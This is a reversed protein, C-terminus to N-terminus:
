LGASANGLPGGAPQQFSTRDGTADPEATCGPVSQAPTRNCLALKKGECGIIQPAPSLSQALAGLDKRNAILVVCQGSAWLEHLKAETGIFGAHEEPSEAFPALEGWYEVLLERQGTYFPLSQVYHRYSAIACGHYQGIQRALTRYSTQASADIRAHEGLVTTAAMTIAIAAFVYSSRRSFRALITAAISGAALVAAIMSGDFALATGIKGRIAILVVVATAAGIANVLVFLRMLRAVREESMVSLRSLAFGAVIAIPPIAPLIYSGLKSRPISFFIFILAFWIGLLRLASRTKASDRAERAIAVGSPVFFLWPWTGGLVIPIFFYPGWGHEQSSVFRQLHEHVFFFRLFGPNRIGAAVFWPVVIIAYVGICQLIPMRAIERGRREVLIWALAIGGGLILAVPGKALTGLALMASAVIMWRRSERSRFDGPAAAFYFAGVAMTLFFALAPDLTAFRAFAFVLPCLALALAGTLGAAAGFMAEGIACTAAVEGATFLAAPLRVAFETAGFLHIAASEAWYVLPPKEFYRVMNDRPTVYDGSIVMERAIEAYRGEDPEWLAPAGLAPLYLLAAILASLAIRFWRYRPAM